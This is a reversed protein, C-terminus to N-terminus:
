SWTTVIVIGGAGFGGWCDSGQTVGQFGGGGPFISQGKCCGTINGTSCNDRGVSTTAGYPGAGASAITHHETSCYQNTKSVSRTGPLAWDFGCACAPQESWCQGCLSTYYCNYCWGGCKQRGYAGGNACFNNLGSGQVFSPCGCFGCGTRGTCCGCCSCRQTGAACITYQTSGPTFDGKHSFLTRVAYSGGGGPLGWGMSCCRSPGGTGGGGTLEFRITLVKGPVTWQCCCGGNDADWFCCDYFWMQETVATSFGSVQAPGLTNPMVADSGKIKKYTQYDAM